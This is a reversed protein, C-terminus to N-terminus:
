ADDVRAGGLDAALQDLARAARKALGTRSRDKVWDDYM